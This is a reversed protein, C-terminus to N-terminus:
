VGRAAPSPPPSTRIEQTTLLRSALSEPERSSRTCLTGQRAGPLGGSMWFAPPLPPPLRESCAQFRRSVFAWLQPADRVLVLVGWDNSQLWSPPDPM